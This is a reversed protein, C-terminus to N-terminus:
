KFDYVLLPVLQELPKDYKPHSIQIIDWGLEVYSLKGSYKNVTANIEAVIKNPDIDYM